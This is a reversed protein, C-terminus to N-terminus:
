DVQENELILKGKRFGVVKSKIYSGVMPYNKSIPWDISAKEGIKDLVIVKSVMKYDEERQFSVIETVVFSYEKGLEYFPHKPEILYNGRKSLKSVVGDFEQGVALGYKLYHQCNIVHRSKEPAEVVYYFGKEHEIKGVITFRYSKGEELSNLRMKSAELASLSVKGKRIYDVRCNLYKGTINSVSFVEISNAYCDEVIVADVTEGTPLLVQSLSKIKFDYYDGERYYPHAPELYIKGSCSIKDIRCRITSGIQIGYQNYPKYPLLFKGAEPHKLVFFDEGEDEIRKIALVLYNAVQGEKLDM